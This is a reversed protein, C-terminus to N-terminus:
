QQAKLHQAVLRAQVTLRELHVVFSEMSEALLALAEADTEGISSIEPPGSAIDDGFNTPASDPWDLVVSARRYESDTFVSQIKSLEIKPLESM